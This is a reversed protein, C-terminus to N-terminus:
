SDALVGGAYKESSNMSPPVQLLFDVARRQRRGLPRPQHLRQGARHTRGGARCTRVQFGALTRSIFSPVGLIASKPQGLAELAVLLWVPVAGDDAGTTCPGPAPAHEGCM